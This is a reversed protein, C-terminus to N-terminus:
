YYYYREKTNKVLLINNIVGYIYIYIYVCV